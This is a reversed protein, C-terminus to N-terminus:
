NTACRDAPRAAHPSAPHDTRARSGRGGARRDRSSRGAVSLRPPPHRRPSKLPGHQAADAPQVPRRRDLALNQWNDAFWAQATAALTPPEIPPAPLDDYSSVEVRDAATEDARAAAAHPAGDQHDHRNGGAEFKTSIQETPSRRSTAPSHRTRSSGSDPSLLKQAGARHRHRHHSDAAGKQATTQEHGAVAMQEERNEDLTSEQDRSAPLTARRTAPCKTPSRAPAAVPRRTQKRVDQSIHQIGLGHAAHRGRSEPIRQGTGSRTGRQRGRRRRSVRGPLRPNERELLRRVVTQSGCVRNASRQARAHGPRRRLHCQREPRHHDRGGARDGFWGSAATRIAQVLNAALKVAPRAARGGHGQREVQPPFGEKRVEQFQVTATDIGNFDSIVQSVSRRSRRSSSSTRCRVQFRHPQQFQRDGRRDGLRLEAAPLQRRVPGAPVRGAQRAPRQIRQRGGRFGNLGPPRSPRSCRTWSPRRFSARASCSIRQGHQSSLRVLIDPQRRDHGAAHRGHHAIGADHEQVSRGTPGHSQESLGDALETVEM